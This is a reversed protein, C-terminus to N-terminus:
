SLRYERLHVTTLGLGVLQMIFWTILRDIIFNAPALLAVLGGTITPKWLHGTNPGVDEGEDTRHFLSDCNTAVFHYYL